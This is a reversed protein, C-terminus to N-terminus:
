KGGGLYLAWDKMLARRKELADGRRYAREVADGVAHALAAEAIERQHDTEDTAWDKFTSRFGHAVAEGGGHAGIVKGFTMDSLPRNARVGPFVFENLSQKKMAKVIEVARACLPVRHIRHEKM